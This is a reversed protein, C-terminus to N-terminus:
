SEEAVLSAVPLLDPRKPPVGDGSSAGRLRRRVWPMAYQRAWRADQRRAALWAASRHRVPLGPRVPLVPYAPFRPPTATSAAPTLPARWDDTVPIGLVECARLAVRHHAEATLHLRDLSWARPDQLVRMSWLDVLDCGRNDAIARLHMNYEAVRGRLLRLVPFTRPDFGTFMLVRCGTQRLRAVGADFLEALGDPDAGPRLLDNGGAAISVLEPEMAVALPVQEAVVQRLLRGRVALNAYRLEPQRAALMEALRDAWGRYGGGPRPDDLGETFSDGLAVFSRPVLRRSVSRLGGAAGANKRDDM